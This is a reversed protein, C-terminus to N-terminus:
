RYGRYLDCQRPSRNTDTVWGCFERVSKPARRYDAIFSDLSSPRRVVPTDVVVPATVAFSPGWYGYGGGWFGRGRGWHGGRHHRRGGRHRGGHYGGGRRGRVHRAAGVRFAELTSGAAIGCLVLLLLKKKM